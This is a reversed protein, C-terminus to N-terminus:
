IGRALIRTNAHRVIYGQFSSDALQAGFRHSRPIRVFDVRNQGFESVCQALM